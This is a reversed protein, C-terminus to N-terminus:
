IFILCFLFVNLLYDSLSLSLHTYIYIYVQGVTDLDQNQLQETWKEWKKSDTQSPFIVELAERVSDDDEINLYGSTNISNNVNRLSASLPM